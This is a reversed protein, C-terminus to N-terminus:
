NRRSKIYLVAFASGAVGALVPLMWIASTQLGALMLATSDIPLLEGGVIPCLNPLNDNFIGAIIVIGSIPALGPNENITGHNDVQSQVTIALSGSESFGDGGNLNITGKNVHMSSVIVFFGSSGGSAGNTEIIGGCENTSDAGSLRLEGSRGANSGITTIKGSNTLAGIQPGQITNKIELQGGAVGDIVLQAGSEVTVTADVSQIDRVTVIDGNKITINDGDVPISNNCNIWTTIQDWFGTQTSECNFAYANMTSFSVLGSVLITVVMIAFLKM